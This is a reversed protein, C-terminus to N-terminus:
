DLTIGLDHILPVWVAREADILAQMEAPGGTLPQLGIETMRGRAKPEAVAAALAGTLRGVVPDPTAAPVVLGQWASAEFDALGLTERITPVDPLQSIREATTAALPRIKGARIQGAASPYDVVMLEIHGGVLDNLAPAAGKYPVHNLEIGSERALRAMTLHHPSGIGPSAYDISGPEARAREVLGKVDMSVSDLRVALLLPFRAMLGVPRFDKAPDYPLKKFLAPNFVLTGNDATFVTYGDPEAKAAASAGINTAGGPKNEIVLTQGLTPAMAEALIRALTDSGGGAAYAVIWTVPREPFDAWASRLPLVAAAVGAALAARRSFQIPQTM